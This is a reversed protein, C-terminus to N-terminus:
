WVTPPPPPGLSAKYRQYAARVRMEAEYSTPFPNDLYAMRWTKERFSEAALGTPDLINRIPPTPTTAASTDLKPVPEATQTTAAPTDLKPVPETIPTTAASTNLKPAPETIQTTAASTALEDLAVTPQPDPTTAASVGHTIADDKAFLDHMEDNCLHARRKEEAELERREEEAMLAQLEEDAELARELHIWARSIGAEDSPTADMRALKERKEAKMLAVIELAEREHEAEREEPTLPLGPTRKPQYVPNAPTPAYFGRAPREIQGMNILDNLTRQIQFPSSHPSQAYLTSVHIPKTAPAILEHLHQFLLCRHLVDPRSTRFDNAQLTHPGHFTISPLKSAPSRKQIQLILTLTPDAYDNSVHTLLLRAPEFPDPTLLLHSIAIRRFRESRELVSPRTHGGKAPCNRILLCAINRSILRQNLDALLDALRNDTWRRDHSLLDIFPDLIILRANVRDIADFLRSLDLPLSFPRYGSPHSATQPDHIYSLIEINLLNAGLSSLLPFQIARADVNPTVIVVGGHITPTGDPLPSNSSVCAAIQLALLSQGTGYDGDLLTIGGLPLRDPWLWRTPQDTAGVLNKQYIAFPVAFADADHNKLTPTDLAINPIQQTTISPQTHQNM